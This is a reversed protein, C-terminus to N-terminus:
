ASIMKKIEELQKIHRKTHYITFYTWELRTFSGYEPISFDTCVLTLDERDIFERFRSIRTKLDQLLENKEIYGISPLIGEPSSMKIDFNLFLEKIGAIKEDIPRTAPMVNGNLTHIVGYSKYLHDAVQGGTWSGAFPSENFQSPSFEQILSLLERMTEDFLKEAEAKM